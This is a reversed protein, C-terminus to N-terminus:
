TTKLDRFRILKQAEEDWLKLNWTKFSKWLTVPKVVQFEENENHCKELNYNPIKPSLHHIHHFGINGSFWQIVKPLKFFSSGYLSMKTHDWDEERAWIVDEYQHQVYFLWVGVTSAIYLIPLQVWLFTSWGVLSIVGVICAVIGLNTWLVKLRDKWPMDTRSFRNRVAFLLFAAIGFLFLPHRYIKYKLKGLKSLQQYEEVTMTYIDGIGRDDLNGVTSHHTLHEYRWKHFPTFTLVSLASGVIKNMRATKFFSSHACDHFIIFIRVMFGANIVGLAITILPSISVSYVMVIWIIIYPVVSNIIQWWSKSLSPKNYNAIIKHWAVGAKRLQNEM